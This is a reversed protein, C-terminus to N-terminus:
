ENLHMTVIIIIFPLSCFQLPITSECALVVVTHYHNGEGFFHLCM